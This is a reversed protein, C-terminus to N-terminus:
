LCLCDPCAATSAAIIMGSVTKMVSPMMWSVIICCAFSIVSYAAYWAARAPMTHFPLLSRMCSAAMTASSGVIPAM